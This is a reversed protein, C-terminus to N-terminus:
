AFAERASRAPRLGGIRMAFGDAMRLGVAKSEDPTFIRCQGHISSATVVFAYARRFHV